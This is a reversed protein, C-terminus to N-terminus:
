SPTEMARLRTLSIGNVIVHALAAPWFSEYRAILLGFSLGVVLAFTSWVIWRRSIGGHSLAFLVSAVVYGLSHQMVGRYLAEEAVGSVLAVWWCAAVSPLAIMSALTKSLARLAPVHPEALWTILSISLALAAGVGLGEVLDNPARTLLALGPETFVAWVVAVGAMVAYFATAMGPNLKPSTESSM